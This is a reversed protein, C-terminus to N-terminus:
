LAVTLHMKQIPVIKYRAAYEIFPAACKIFQAASEIFQTTSVRHRIRVRAGIRVGARFRLECFTWCAKVLYSKQTKQTKSSNFKKHFRAKILAAVVEFSESFWEKVIYSRIYEIGPIKLKCILLPVRHYIFM